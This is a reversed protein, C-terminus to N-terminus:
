LGQAPADTAPSCRMDSDRPMVPFGRADVRTKWYCARNIGFVFIYDNIVGQIEIPLLIQVRRGVTSALEAEIQARSGSVKWFSQQAWGGTTGLAPSGATYDVYETPLIQDNLEGGRVVVSPPQPLSRNAFPIGVHMVRKSEGDKDVYAANDWIVRISHDTKNRLKFAIVESTPSWTVQMVSDEFVFRTREGPASVPTVVSRGFRQQANEPREVSLLGVEYRARYEAACAPLLLLALIAISLRATNTM